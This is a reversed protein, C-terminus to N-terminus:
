GTASSPTQKPAALAQQAAGAVALAGVMGAATLGVARWGPSFIAVGLGVAGSGALGLTSGLLAGWGPGCIPSAATATRQCPPMAIAGVVAGAAVTGAVIGLAALGIGLVDTPADM